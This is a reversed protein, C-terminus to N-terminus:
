PFLASDVIPDFGGYLPLGAAYRFAKIASATKPGLSGDAVLPELTPLCDNLRAQRVAILSKTAVGYAGVSQGRRAQIRVDDVNVYGKRKYKRGAPTDEYAENGVRKLLLGATDVWTEGNQPHDFGPNQKYVVPKDAATYLVHDPQDKFPLHAPYFNCLYLDGPANWSDLNYRKRWDAFYKGAWVIQRAVPVLNYDGGAADYDPDGAKFGLTLLTAPMIQTLGKAGKKKSVPDIYVAFPGSRPKVALGSECAMVCLADEPRFSGKISEQILTRYDDDTWGNADSM